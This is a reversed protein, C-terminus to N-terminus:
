RGMYCVATMGPGTHAGIIPSLGTRRIVADPYLARVGDRVEDGLEVADSDVIYIVDGSEPDYNKEFEQLLVHVGQKNGRKKDIVVLKGQPDIKMIPRVSLATGFVAEATSIRGGRRLYMLDPVMFQHQIHHSAEQLDEFNEQLSMGTDRNRMARESLVGMGGTAALTDVPLVKQEPFEESLEAAALCASQYTASLGSSLSLYLISEGRELYSRFVETYQAPTIQTTQTLDGHRQGDYFLKLTERTEMNTCVRNEGRLTYEMPLFHLGGKEAYEPLIDGSVDMLIQYSVM